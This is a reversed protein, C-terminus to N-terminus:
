GRWGRRGGKLLGTWIRTPTRAQAERSKALAFARQAKRDLLEALQEDETLPMAFRAALAYVMATRFQAPWRDPGTARTIEACPDALIQDSVLVQGIRDFTVRKGGSFVSVIGMASDPVDYAAAWPTGAPLAAPVLAVMERAFRWPYDAFAAEVTDALLGDVTRAVIDTGGLADVPELGLEALAANVIKITSISSELLAM